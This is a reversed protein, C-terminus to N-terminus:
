IEEMQFIQDDVDEAACVTMTCSDGTDTRQKKSHTSPSPEQDQPESRKASLTYHPQQWVDLHPSCVWGKCNKWQCIRQYISQTHNLPMDWVPNEVAVGGLQKVRDIFYNLKQWVTEASEMAYLCKRQKDFMSFAGIHRDNFM